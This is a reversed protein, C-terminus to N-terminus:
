ENAHTDTKKQLNELRKRYLNLYLEKLEVYFEQAEEYEFKNLENNRSVGFISNTLFKLSSHIKETEVNGTKVEIKSFIPTYTQLFLPKFILPKTRYIRVNTKTASSVRYESNIKKFDYVNLALGRFLTSPSVQSVPNNKESIIREVIELLENKTVTIQQM